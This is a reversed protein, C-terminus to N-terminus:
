IFVLAAGSALLCARVAPLIRRLAILAVVPLAVVLFLGSVKSVFACGAFAGGCVALSVHNGTVGSVLCMVALYSFVTVALDSTALHGHALLNPCSATLILAAIAAIRSNTARWTFFCVSALLLAFLAITSCRAAFIMADANNDTGYLLIKGVLWADSVGFRMAGGIDIPLLHLPIAALLGPLPPQEPYFDVLGFRTRIISAAIHAPEDETASDNWASFGEAGVVILIILLAIWRLKVFAMVENIM